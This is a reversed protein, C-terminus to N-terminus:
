PFLQAQIIFSQDNAPGVIGRQRHTRSYDFTLKLSHRRFYYNTVASVISVSDSTTNRNYDVFSYRTAVDLKCPLVFYGAQGYFGYSFLEVRSDKGLAQGVYYEGQVSLGRWKFQGELGGSQISIEEGMTFLKAGRGLWGASGAYNLPLADFDTDSTKKLTNHFGAAGFSLAPDKHNQVDPEGQGMEGIPNWVLRLMPMVHESPRVTNQGEGGFVGAQYAFQNKLFNGALMVGIDRSPKFSDTALAREPFQIVGDNYLEDRSFPTKYQGGQVSIADSFKWNLWADDLYRNAATSEFAAQFRWTLRPDLAFGSLFLKFRRVRFEAADPTTGTQDFDFDSFRVQLNFGLSAEFLNDPSRFVMGRGEVYQIAPKAPPTDSSVQQASAARSLLMGAAVLLFAVFRKM